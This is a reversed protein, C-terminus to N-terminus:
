FGIVLSAAEIAHSPVALQFSRNRELVAFEAEAGTRERISCAIQAIPRLLVKEPPVGNLIRNELAAVTRSSPFASLLRHCVGNKNLALSTCFKTLLGLRELQGALAFSHQTGPHALLVGM